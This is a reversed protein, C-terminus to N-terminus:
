FQVSLSLIYLYKYVAVNTYFVVGNDAKLDTNSLTSIKELEGCKEMHMAAFVSIDGQFSYTNM